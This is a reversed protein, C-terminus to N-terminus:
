EIRDVRLMVVDGSKVTTIFLVVASPHDADGRRLTAPVGVHPEGTEFTRIISKRIVCGSCHITRGCGEPLRAYACEFVNGGLHQVMERRDKGFVDCAKRNVAKVVVNRDVALVPVPISDLYRQFPVGQQFTFNDVCSECIGHSTETDPHSSGEVTGMEKTCWACVRKM